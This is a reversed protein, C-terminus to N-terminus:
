TGEWGTEACAQGVGRVVRAVVQLAVVQAVHVPLAVDHRRTCGGEGSFGEERVGVDTRRHPPRQLRTHKNVM